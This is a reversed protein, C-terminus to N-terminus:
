ASPRNGNVEPVPAGRTPRTPLASSPLMLRFASPSCRAPKLAYRMRVVAPSQAAPPLVFFVVAM